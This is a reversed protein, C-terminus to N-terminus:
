STHYSFYAVPKEWLISIRLKSRILVNWKALAKVALEWLHHKFRV